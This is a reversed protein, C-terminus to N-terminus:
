GLSFSSTRGGPSLNYCRWDRNTFYWQAGGVQLARRPSLDTARIQAANFTSVEEPTPDRGEEQARDLIAHGVARLAAREHPPAARM